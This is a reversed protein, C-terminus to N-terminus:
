GHQMRRLIVDALDSPASLAIQHAVGSLIHHEVKTLHEALKSMAAPPVSRDLAGSVLTVPSELGPLSPTLRSAGLAAWAAAWNQTKMRVLRAHAYCVQWSQPSTEEPIFWRELTEAIQPAVGQALALRSRETAAPFGDAVGAVVGVHAIASPRTVAMALAVTGGFSVGCVAFRTIGLRACAGLIISATKEADDPGPVADAGHGPLDIALVTFHPALLPVLRVWSQHDLGIGHLLVLKPGVGFQVWGLTHGDESVIGNEATALVRLIRDQEYKELGSLATAALKM